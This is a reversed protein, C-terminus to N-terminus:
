NWYRRGRKGESKGITDVNGCCLFLGKDTDSFNSAEYFKEYDKFCERLSDTTANGDVYYIYVGVDSSLFGGKKLLFTRSGHKLARKQQVKFGKKEYKLIEKELINM